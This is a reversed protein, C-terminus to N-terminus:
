TGEIVLTAWVAYHDSGQRVKGDLVECSVPSIGPSCVIHDLRKEIVYPNSGQQKSPIQFWHTTKDTLALADECNLQLLLHAHAHFGDNENFDGLVIFKHGHPRVADLIFKLEALRISATQHMSLPGVYSDLGVPPRLHVNYIMIDEDGVHLMYVACPFCSGAVTKDVNVVSRLELDYKSFVSFGGATYASPQHSQFSYGSVTLPARLLDIWSDTTEQFCIVDVGSDILERVCELVVQTSELHFKSSTNLRGFARNVNYTGIRLVTKGSMDVHRLRMRRGKQLIATTQVSTERIAGLFDVDDMVRTILDDVTQVRAMDIRDSRARLFSAFKAVLNSIQAANLLLDERLRLALVEGDSKDKLLSPSTLLQLERFSGVVNPVFKLKAWACVQTARLEPDEISLGESAKIWMMTM